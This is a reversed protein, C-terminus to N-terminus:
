RSRMIMAELAHSFRDWERQYKFAFLYLVDKTTKAAAYYVTGSHEPLDKSRKMVGPQLTDFPLDLVAIKNGRFGKPTLILLRRNSILTV